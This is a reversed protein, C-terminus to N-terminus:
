PYDQSEPGSSGPNAALVTSVSAASGASLRLAAGHLAHYQAAAGKPQM